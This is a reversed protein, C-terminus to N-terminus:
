TDTLDNEDGMILGNFASEILDFGHLLYSDSLAIETRARLRIEIEDRQGLRWSIQEIPPTGDVALSVFETALLIDGAKMSFSTANVLPPPKDNAITFYADFQIDITQGVFQAVTNRISGIPVTTGPVKKGFRARHVVDVHLNDSPEDGSGGFAAAVILSTSGVRTSARLWEDTRANRLAEQVAVDKTM